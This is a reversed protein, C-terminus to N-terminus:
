AIECSGCVLITSTSGLTLGVSGLQTMLVNTSSTPQFPAVTTSSAPLYGFGFLTGTGAAFIECPVLQEVAVTTIGAPLSLTTPATDTTTTGFLVKIRFTLRKGDTMYAASVSGNGITLGVLTPSWATWASTREIPVWTSGNYTTLIGTDTEYATLGTTLNVTPRTASTCVVIGGLAAARPRKDTIAANLVSTSLAAVAVQALIISNNPAAPPVPSGAAVGTVVVLSSTNSAGSYAADQVKYCVLDIRPNTANAASIVLTVVADNYVVYEGQTATESGLIFAGGAAVDVSMGPTGAHQAVLLDGANAIGSRSSMSLAQGIRDNEAPHSGAQLWLPPNREAM